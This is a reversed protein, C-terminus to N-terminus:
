VLRRGIFDRAGNLFARWALAKKTRYQLASLVLTGDGTQVLIGRGTDVGLVTGPAAEPGGEGVPDASATLIYLYQDGDM